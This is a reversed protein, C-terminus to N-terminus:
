PWGTRRQGLGQRGPDAAGRGRKSRARRRRDARFTKITRSRVPPWAPAGSRTATGPISTPAAAPSRRRSRKRRTGRDGDDDDLTAAPRLRVGRPRRRQDCGAASSLRLVRQAYRPLANWTKGGDSTSFVGNERSQWGHQKDAFSTYGRLGAVAGPASAAPAAVAFGHRAGEYLRGGAHETSRVVHRRLPRNYELRGTQADYGRLRAPAGSLAVWVTPGAVTPSGQLTANPFAEKWTVEASDCDTTLSVRVLATFTTVYVSRTASDYAPQTILPREVSAQQVPVDAFPGDAISAAHWLFLRGNKNVAAVVEDCGAPTFIVPSGAFDVDDTGTM